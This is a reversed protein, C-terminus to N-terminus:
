QPVSRAGTAEPIPIAAPGQLRDGPDAAVLAEAEIKVSGAQGGGAEKGGRPEGRPGPFPAAARGHDPHSRLCCRSGQAAKAGTAPHQHPQESQGHRRGGELRKGVAEPKRTLNWLLGTADAQNAM